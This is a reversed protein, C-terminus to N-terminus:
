LVPLIMLLVERQLVGEMREQVLAEVGREIEGVEKLKEEIGREREKYVKVREKEMMLKKEELQLLRQEQEEARRERESVVRIRREIDSELDRDHALNRQPTAPPPTYFVDRTNAHTSACTGQRGVDMPSSQVAAIRHSDRAQSQLRSVQQMLNATATGPSACAHSAPTSVSTHEKGIGNGNCTKDVTPTSISRTKRIKLRAKWCCAEVTEMWKDRNVATDAALVMQAESVGSLVRSHCFITMVAMQEGAAAGGNCTERFSKSVSTDADIGLTDLVQAKDSANYCMLGSERLEVHVDYWSGESDLKKLTGCMLVPAYAASLPTAGGGGTGGGNPTQM